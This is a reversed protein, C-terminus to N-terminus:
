APRCAKVLELVLRYTDEEIRHHYEEVVGLIAARVDPPVTDLKERLEEPMRRLHAEQLEKRLRESMAAHYNAHIEYRNSNRAKDVRSFVNSSAMSM